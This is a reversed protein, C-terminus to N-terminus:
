HSKLKKFEIFRYYYKEDAARMIELVWEINPLAMIEDYSGGDFIDHAWRSGLVLFAIEESYKQERGSRLIHVLDQAPKGTFFCRNDNTLKLKRKIESLRSVKRRQKKSQKPILTRPIYPHINIM